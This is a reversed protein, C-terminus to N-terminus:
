PKNPKNKDLSKSPPKSQLNLNKKELKETLKGYRCYVNTSYNDVSRSVSLSDVKVLKTQLQGELSSLPKGSSNIASFTAYFDNGESKIAFDMWGLGEQEFYSLCRFTNAFKDELQELNDHNLKVPEGYAVIYSNNYPNSGSITANFLGFEDFVVGLTLGNSFQWSLLNDDVSDPTGFLREISERSDGFHIEFGNVVVYFLHSKAPNVDATAFPVLSTTLGTLLLFTLLPKKM